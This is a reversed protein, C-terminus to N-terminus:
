RQRLVAPRRVVEPVHPAGPIPAAAAFQEAARASDDRFNLLYFGLYLRLEWNNPFRQSAASSSASRGTPTPSDAAARHRLPHLRRRVQLRVRFGPDVGVVVELFDGLNRYHNLEQAPETFYQLARVWYWDAVLQEFGLSM